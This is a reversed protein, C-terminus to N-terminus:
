IHLHNSSEHIFIWHKYVCMWIIFHPLTTILRGWMKIGVGSVNDHTHLILELSLMFYIPSLTDGQLVERENSFIWLVCRHWRHESRQDGGIDSLMGRSFSIQKQKDSTGAETLSRDLFKHSVSDFTVSYDVFTVFLTKEADLENTQWSGSLNTFTM